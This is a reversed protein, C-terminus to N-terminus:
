FEGLEIFPSLERRHAIIVLKRGPFLWETFSATIFESRQFIEAVSLEPPCELRVTM